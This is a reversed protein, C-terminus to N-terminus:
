VSKRFYRHPVFPTPVIEAPQARGRVSVQLKTGIATHELPVFGLAIAKGLSPAFGGSTVVGITKGSADLIEAGERAPAGQVILGVRKRTLQGEREALIRAAGPFDAAERRRKSVAFGLDAEIPSVTEDLDHGYLPLAAELRLSDRAGLGIPKVRPDALLADWLRAANKASCLLEFGDEGTYGSRSIILEEDDWQFAGFQMFGLEVVGPVMAALVGVAEPGQLALLANDDVRQFDAKDGAAKALLAFDAEKTGANVVIYLAGPFRPSRAVMLDDLTGGSENLLLTYRVQGPKLGAIDGCILPEVLAAVAAHDAAADGSRDKLTLFSPGMHSVDFLGAQERTWKHEAMIGTPYQVPLAYGGFPVIRGGAAVHREYLPTRLLDESSAEAM